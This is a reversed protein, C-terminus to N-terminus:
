DFKIKKLADWSSPAAEPVCDCTSENLNTGCSPCLGKCDERHLPKMPLALYIQERVLQSVAIGSEVLLRNVAAEARAHLSVALLDADVHEAQEGASALLALVKIGHRPAVENIFYRYKATTVFGANTGFEEAFIEIRQDDPNRHYAAINHGVLHRIPGWVLHIGNRALLDAHEEPATADLVTLMSAEITGFWEDMANITPPDITM